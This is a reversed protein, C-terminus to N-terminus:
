EEQPQSLANIEAQTLVRPPIQIEAREDLSPTSPRLRYPVPMEVFHGKSGIEVVDYGLEPEKKRQYELCRNRGTPVCYIRQWAPNRSNFIAQSALIQETAPIDQVAIYVCLVDGCEGDVLVIDGARYFFQRRARAQAWDDSSRTRLCKELEDITLAGTSACHTISQDTLASSWEENYAGWERDFLKLEYYPYLAQLEAISPIGAPETVEVHCIKTWKSSDFRKSVAVINEDAEYLSVRYGDEEILLVRAGAYYAVLARYNAVSWKDDTSSILLNPTLNNIEWPFEIDGWSKYLGKQPNYVSYNEFLEKVSVGCTNVSERSCSRDIVNGVGGGNSVDEVAQKQEDSPPEFCGRFYLNSLSM